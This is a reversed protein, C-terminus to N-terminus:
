LPKVIPKMRQLISDTINSNENFGMCQKVREEDDMPINMLELALRIPPIKKFPELVNRVSSNCFIEPQQVIRQIQQINGFSPITDTPIRAFIVDLGMPKATSKAKEEVESIANNINDVLEKAPILATNIPARIFDPAFTAFIWLIFGAFFSKSAHFMDDQLQERIQPSIFLWADRVLKLAVGIVLPMTGFFGMFTFIGYKWEGRAVDLVTQFVTLLKRLGDVPVVFSFIIRLIEMIGNLLPLIANAPVSLRFPPFPIPISPDIQLSSTIALPGIQRALERNQEDLQGMYNTFRRYVRDLSIDEPKLYTAALGKLTETIDAAGGAQIASHVFMKKLIPEADEFLDEIKVAEEATFISDGTATKCAAAWGADQKRDKWCLFVTSFNHIFWYLNKDLEPQQLIKQFINEFDTITPNDSM